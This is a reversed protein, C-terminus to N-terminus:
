WRSASAAGCWRRGATLSRTFVGAIASGPALEALMLDYRGTYRIGCAFAALRVPL